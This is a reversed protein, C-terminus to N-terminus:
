HAQPSRRYAGPSTDFIKKFARTFAHVTAYRAQDAVQKISVMPNASLSEAAARLRNELLHRHPAIRFVNSFCRSFHDTSLNCRSAMTQVTWSEYPKQSIEELLPWLQSRFADMGDRTRVVGGTRHLIELLCLALVASAGEMWFSENRLHAQGAIEVQDLLGRSIRLRRFRQGFVVWYRPELHFKFSAQRYGKTTQFGHRLLPPILWAEGKLGRFPKRREISVLVEGELILDLQFFHHLHLPVTEWLRATSFNFRNLKTIM